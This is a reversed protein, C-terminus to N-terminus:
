EAEGEIDPSDLPIHLQAANLSPFHDEVQGGDPRELIFAVAPMGSDDYTYGYIAYGQLQPACVKVGTRELREARSRFYEAARSYAEALLGKNEELRGNASPGSFQDLGNLLREPPVCGCCLYAVALHDSLDMGGGTLAIAFEPTDSAFEPGFPNHGEGFEVLTCAGAFRDILAAAEEASPGGYSMSVPWAYNMVPYYSDRWEEFADSQQWEDAHDSDLESGLEPSDVEDQAAIRQWEAFLDPAYEKVTAYTAPPTLVEYEDGNQYLERWDIWVADATVFRLSFGHRPSTLKGTDTM